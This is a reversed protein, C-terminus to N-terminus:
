KAVSHDCITWLMGTQVVPGQFGLHGWYRWPNVIVRQNGMVVTSGKRFFKINKAIM